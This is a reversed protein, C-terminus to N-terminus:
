AGVAREVLEVAQPLGTAVTVRHPLLDARWGPGGVVVSTPPRTVPLAALVAPDATGPLQSWVFLLAPGTRRVAAGIAAAPMSPGLSRAAIGREGLAAALAHLPLSHNEEPACSLLVPRRGPHEEARDAVERLVTAVCDSLLHEVEVGEGTTAWREGVAVLVPRLVHEWTHLVGHAEVEARLARTVSRADLAMAARGLGRVVGDAGPLALVRGGPGGRGRLSGERDPLPGAFPTAAVIPTALAVRAADAPPVGELTLRRMAELRGLDQATFRRHAGAAHASPGLGYRRAWTRLTAPAVGLRHAVASVTLRPGDAPGAPGFASPSSDGAGRVTQGDPASSDEPDV